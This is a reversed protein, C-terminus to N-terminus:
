KLDFTTVSTDAVPMTTAENNIAARKANERKTQPCVFGTIELAEKNDDDMCLRAFAAAKMGMNWLERSNKLMTCNKDTWTSGISLGFGVGSAGVSSSGMCTDNSTTLPPSYVNPVNKVTYEGSYHVDNISRTLDRSGNPDNFNIVQTNGANSAQSASGAVATADANVGSTKTYESDGALASFSLITTAIIALIQKM